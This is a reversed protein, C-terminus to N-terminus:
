VTIEVFLGDVVAVCSEYYGDGTTRPGSVVGFGDNKLRATLSDVSGKSGVSFALHTFGIGLGDMTQMVDPRHMLELRAGDDFSLFYTSLGTRPNHYKENATCSFYKCFFERAVELDSVYAALHDIKM